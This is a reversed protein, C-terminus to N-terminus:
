KIFRLINIISDLSIYKFDENWFDNELALFVTQM